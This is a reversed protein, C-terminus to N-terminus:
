SLLSIRLSLLPLPLPLFSITFCPPLLPIPVLPSHFPPSPFFSALFSHLFSLFFCPLFSSRCVKVFSNSLLLQMHPDGPGLEVVKELAGVHKTLNGLGEWTDDYHLALRKYTEIGEGEWQLSKELLYVARRLHKIALRINEDRGPGLGVGVFLRKRKTV